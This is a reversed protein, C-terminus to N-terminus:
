GGMNRIVERVLFLVGAVIPAAALLLLAIKGKRISAALSVPAVLNYHDVWDPCEALVM